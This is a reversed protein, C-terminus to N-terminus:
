KKEKLDRDIFDRVKQPDLRKAIIRKQDDLLYIVPTSYIDYFDRFRTQNAPDTVNIWDLDHERIFKKWLDPESEIGVAYVEISVGKTKLSDYIHHLEPIEV